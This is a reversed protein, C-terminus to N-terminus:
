RRAMVIEMTYSKGKELLFGAQEFSALGTMQVRVTYNGAGIKFHCRGDAQSVRGYMKDADRRLLVTSGLVPESTGDERILVKVVARSTDAIPTSEFKILTSEASQAKCVIVSFPWLVLFLFTCRLSPM